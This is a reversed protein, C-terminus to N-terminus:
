ILKVRGGERFGDPLYGRLTDIISENAGTIKNFYPSKAAKEFVDESWRFANTVNRDELLEQVLQITEEETSNVTSNYMVRYKEKDADNRAKSYLRGIVMRANKGLEASNQSAMLDQLRNVGEGGGDSGEFHRYEHAFLAPNANVAEIASVTDPELELEYGKYKRILQSPATVDKSSAGQLDLGLPGVDAEKPFAKLRAISPDITSGKPMYPAVAIQFEGDGMQLSALFELQQQPSMKNAAKTLVGKSEPSLKGIHAKLKEIIAM